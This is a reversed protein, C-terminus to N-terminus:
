IMKHRGQGGGARVWNVERVENRAVRGRARHARAVSSGQERILVLFMDAKPLSEGSPILM